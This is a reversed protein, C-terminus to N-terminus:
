TRRSLSDIIRELALRNEESMGRWRTLMLSERSAQETREDQTLLAPPVILRESASRLMVAGDLYFGTAGPLGHGLIIRGAGPHAMEYRMASLRRLEQPLAVTVGAAKAMRRLQWRVSKPHLHFLRDSWKPVGQLVRWLVPHMPILHLKSTKNAGRTIGDTTVASWELQLADELRLATFYILALFGIWWEAAFVRPYTAQGTHRLMGDLQDLSPIRPQPADRRLRKGADPVSLLLHKPCARLITLVSDITGEVTAPGRRCYSRFSDFAATTIEEIPLSGSYKEWRNLDHLFRKRTRRALQPGDHYALFAERAGLIARAVM